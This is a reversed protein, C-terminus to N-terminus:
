KCLFNSVLKYIDGAGMVIVREGGRINKKLYKEAEGVNSIYLVDGNSKKLKAKISKVIKKSSVKEKIKKEERGAVDYIDALILKDVWKSKVAKSFVKVFDNFM